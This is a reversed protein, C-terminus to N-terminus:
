NRDSYYFNAIKMDKNISNSKKLVQSGMSGNSNNKPVAKGNKNTDIKSVAKVEYKIPVDKRALKSGDIQQMFIKECNM